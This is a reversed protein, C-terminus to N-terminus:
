HGKRGKKKTISRAPGISKSGGKKQKSVEQAGKSSTPIQKENDSSFQEDEEGSWLKSQIPDGRQQHESTEFVEATGEKGSKAKETHEHSDQAWTKISEKVRRIEEDLIALADYPNSSDTGSLHLIPGLRSLIKVGEQELAVNMGVITVWVPRRRGRASWADYDPTWPQIQVQRNNFSLPAAGFVRAREEPSGLVILYQGRGIQKVRRIHVGLAKVMVEQAWKTITDRWPSAAGTCVILGNSQLDRTTARLHFAAEESLQHTLLKQPATREIPQPMLNLTEAVEKRQKDDLNIVTAPMAYSAQATKGKIAEAYSAPMAKQKQLDPDSRSPQGKEKAVDGPPDATHKPDVNRDTGSQRGISPSQRGTEEKSASSSSRALPSGQAEKDPYRMQEMPSTGDLDTSPQLDVRSLKTSPRQEPDETQTTHQTSAPSSPSGFLAMRINSAMTIGAALSKRRSTNSPTALPSQQYMPNSEWWTSGEPDVMIFHERIKKGFGLFEGSRTLLNLQINDRKRSEVHAEEIHDVPDVM